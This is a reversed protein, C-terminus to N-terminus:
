FQIIYRLWTKAHPCSEWYDIDMFDCDPCHELISVRSFLDVETKRWSDIVKCRQDEKCCNLWGWVVCLSNTDVLFLVWGYEILTSEFIGFSEQGPVAPFTASITYILNSKQSFLVHIGRYWYCYGQWSFEQWRLWLESNEPIELFIIRCEIDLLLHEYTSSSSSTCLNCLQLRGASLHFSRPHVIHALMRSAKGMKLRAEKYINSCSYAIHYCRFLRDVPSHGLSHSSYM